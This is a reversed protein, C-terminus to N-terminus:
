DSNSLPPPVSLPKRRKFFLLDITESVGIMGFIMGVTMGVWHALGRIMPSPSPLWEAAYAGGIMGLIMGINGFLYMSLPHHAQTCEQHTRSLFLMALNCTVLMGLWMGWHSFDGKLVALCHCCKECSLVAFNLDYWWGLTMGLNGFTLMGIAMDWVHELRPTRHWVWALFIGAGFFGICFLWFAEGTVGLLRALIPGQLTLALAHITAPILQRVQQLQSSFSASVPRNPLRIPQASRTIATAYWTVVLSSVTMLLVALVPHILGCAALTVGVGNYLLALLFSRKLIADTQRALRILEPITPLSRTAITIDAQHVALPSGSILAIGVDARAIAPADNMGDGVFITTQGAQQRRAIEEEKHRPLLEARTQPLNWALARAASDGTLIAVELGLEQCERIVRPAQEDLSESLSIAASLEGDVRVGIWQIRPDAGREAIRANAEREAIGANLGREHIEPLESQKVSSPTWENETLKGVQVRYTRGKEELSCELGQAPIYHYDLIHVSDSREGLAFPKAFPHQSKEQIVALWRRLTSEPIKGFTHFERIVPDIRSLTGTKDFGIWDARALSEIVETRHVIVGQSALRALMSWIALPTALGLACPCAVLLVSMAHYLGVSWGEQYTWFVFTGGAITILLPVLIQALQNIFKDMRTPQSSVRQLLQMIQDIERNTGTASSRVVLLADHNISGALVTDGSQHPTAFSEGKLSAASVLSSGTEIIGDVPIFEGPYVQIRDGMQISETPVEQTSGNPLIKWCRTPVDLFSQSWALSRNKARVGLVKGLTYITLLIPPIEFYIAGQGTVLAQLSAMLSGILTLLFFSEITIKRQRIQKIQEAFLPGGLLLLAVVTIAFIFLQVIQKTESPTDPELNIGLSLLMVQGSIFVGLGIRWVSANAPECATHTSCSMGVQPPSDTRVDDLLHNM